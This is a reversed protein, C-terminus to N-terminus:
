PCSDIVAPSWGEPGPNGGDSGGGGEGDTSGGSGSAGGDSPGPGSGGGDAFACVFLASVLITAVLLNHLKLAMELQTFLVFLYDSLTALSTLFSVHTADTELSEKLVRACSERWLLKVRSNPHKMTYPLVLVRM